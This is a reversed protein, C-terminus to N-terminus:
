DQLLTVFIHDKAFYTAIVISFLINSKKDLLKLWTALNGKRTQLQREQEIHIKRYFAWSLRWHFYPLSYYTPILSSGALYSLCSLSAINPYLFPWLFGPNLLMVRKSSIRIIVDTCINLTIIQCEYPTFLQSKFSVFTILQRQPHTNGVNTVVFFM